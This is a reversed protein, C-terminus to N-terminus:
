KRGGGDVGSEDLELYDVDLVAVIEPPLIEACLRWSQNLHAGDELLFIYDHWMEPSHELVWLDALSEPQGDHIIAGYVFFVANRKNESDSDWYGSIVEQILQKLGGKQMEPVVLNAIHKQFESQLHEVTEPSIPSAPSFGDWGKMDLCYTEAAYEQIDDADLFLSSGYVDTRNSVFVAKSEGRELWADLNAGGQARLRERLVPFLQRLRANFQECQNANM